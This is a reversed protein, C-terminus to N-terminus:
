LTVMWRSRRGGPTSNISRHQCRIFLVRWLDAIREPIEHRYRCEVM